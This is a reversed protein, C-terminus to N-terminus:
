GCLVCLACLYFYDSDTHPNSSPHTLVGYKGPV